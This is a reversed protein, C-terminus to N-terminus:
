RHKRKLEEMIKRADPGGQAMPKIPEPRTPASKQSAPTSGAAPTTSHESASPTQTQTKSKLSDVVLLIGAETAPQYTAIAEMLADFDVGQEKAFARAQREQQQIALYEERAAQRPDLSPQRNQTPTSPQTGQGTDGQGTQAEYWAQWQQAVSLAEDREAQIQALRERESAIQKREEALSMTKKTYDAQQLKAKREVEELKASVLPRIDEPLDDLTLTEPTAGDQPTGADQDETNQGDETASANEQQLRTLIDLASEAM